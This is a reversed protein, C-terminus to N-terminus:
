QKNYVSKQTFNGQATKIDRTMTLVKGDASLEWADNIDITVGQADVKMTTLLKAGSWTSTSKVAQEGAPNKLTYTNEKGDTTLNRENSITGTQNKVTSSVRLAPDKHVIVQVISEPPPMPGFDSKVLDINWTGSLDPRADQASAPIGVLLAFAIVSTIRMIKEM